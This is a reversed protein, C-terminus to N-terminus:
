VGIKCGVSAYWFDTIWRIGTLEEPVVRFQGTTVQSKTGDTTQIQLSWVPCAGAMLTKGAYKAEPKVSSVFGSDWLLEEGDKVIIQYGKQEVPHVESELSWSFM